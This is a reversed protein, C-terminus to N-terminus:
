LKTDHHVADKHVHILHRRLNCKVTASYPCLHCRYPREGTHTRVHKELDAKCSSWKGCVNCSVGCSKRGGSGGGNNECNNSEKKEGCM